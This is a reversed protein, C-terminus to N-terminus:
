HNQRWLGKRAARAASEAARLRKKMRSSYGFGTMARGLGAAVLSENVLRDDVYVFALVRRYKDFRERDFELRIPRGSVLRRTLERAQLAYPEPSGPGIEPTDVGILRVRDGNKLELTDGDIVRAVTHVEGDRFEVAFTSEPWSVFRGTAYGTLCVLLLLRFVRPRSFWRSTRPLAGSGRIPM